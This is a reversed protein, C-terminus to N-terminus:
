DYNLKDSFVQIAKDYGPGCNWRSTSSSSLPIAKCCESYQSFGFIGDIGRTYYGPSTLKRQLETVSPGWNGRKLIAGSTSESVSSEFGESVASASEQPVVMGFSFMLLFAIAFLSFWERQM